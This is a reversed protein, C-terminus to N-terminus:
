QIYKTILEVVKSFNCIENQFLIKVLQVVLSYLRNNTKKLIQFIDDLTLFCPMKFLMIPLFCHPLFLFYVASLAICWDLFLQTFYQLKIDSRTNKVYLYM